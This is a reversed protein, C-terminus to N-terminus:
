KIRSYFCSKKKKDYGKKLIIICLFASCNIKEFENAVCLLFLISIYMQIDFMYISKFFRM